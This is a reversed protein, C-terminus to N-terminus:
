IAKHLEGLIVDKKAGTVSPLNGEYNNIHWYALIAFAMAEKFESSIGLDDSILLHCDPLYSQLRQKLYSNRSGGGALIVESPLSPLFRHYSDAISACTLETLTALWDANSLHYNQADQHCKELYIHGFLERGTSKPPKQHFFDQKLWEKILPLCPKGQRSWDGNFDFTQQNNTLKQVALDILANGPGTDWGIIKEQWKPTHTSPLYTANGIGGINQLCRSHRSHRYLCLDIKSVLPAGQGGAAIDAVRFNSVTDINTLHAIYDGKGLQLSYGLQNKNPPQHYVTQGHSGILDIKTDKPIINLVAEAFEFSIAHDLQALEAMSISDGECVQLIKTRLSTSYPFTQGVLLNVKLNLGTGQIDVVATDIGDVSTGSMLGAVIM